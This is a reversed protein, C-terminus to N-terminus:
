QAPTSNNKGIKEFSCFDQMIGKGLVWGFDNAIHDPDEFLRNGYASLERFDLIRLEYKDALMHLFAQHIKQGEPNKRDEFEQAEPNLVLVVDINHDKLLKITKEYYLLMSDKMPGPQDLRHEVIRSAMRENKDQQSRASWLSEQNVNITKPYMSFDCANGTPSTMTRSIQAPEYDSFVNAIIRKIIVPSVDPQLLLSPSTSPPAVDGFVEEMEEDGDIFSGNWEFVKSNRKQEPTFGDLTYHEGNFFLHDDAELYVVKTEPHYKIITKAKFYMVTPITHPNTLSGVHIPSIIEWQEAHSTGILALEIGRDDLSHVFQDYRGDIKQKAIIAAQGQVFFYFCVSILAMLALFAIFFEKDSGSTFLRM